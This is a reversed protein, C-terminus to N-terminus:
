ANIASAMYPRCEILLHQMEHHLKSVEDCEDCIAAHRVNRGPALLKSALTNLSSGESAPFFAHAPHHGHKMGIHCPICLDFDECETCTVFNSEDFASETLQPMVLTAYPFKCQVCSNCTRGSDIPEDMIEKTKSLSAGSEVKKIEPSSSKKPIVKETSSSTVKGDKVFRKVLWHDDGNCRIQRDYCGECLDYDGDDCKSCHYHANPIAVNCNNCCITFTTGPAVFDKSSMSALEAYFQDRANFFRPVPAEDDDEKKPEVNAVGDSADEVKPTFSKANLSPPLPIYTYDQRKPERIDACCQSTQCMPSPSSIESPAIGAAQETACQRQLYSDHSDFKIGSWQDHSQQVAPAQAPVPPPIAQITARMRLKLKAKAARFLQKYVAPDESDLKIYKNSSDSFREFAVKQGPPVALM